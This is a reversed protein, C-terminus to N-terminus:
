VASKADTAAEVLSDVGIDSFAEFGIIKGDDDFEIVSTAVMYCEDKSNIRGTELIMRNGLLGLMSSQTLKYDQSKLDAFAHEQFDEWSMVCTEPNVGIMFEAVKGDQGQLVVYVEREHFLSKLNDMTGTTAAETMYKGWHKSINQAYQKQQEFTSM